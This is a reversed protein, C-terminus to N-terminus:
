PSSTVDNQKRLFVSILVVQLVTFAIWGFNVAQILSEFDNSEYFVPLFVITLFTVISVVIHIVAFPSEKTPEKGSLYGSILFWFPALYRLITLWTPETVHVGPVPSTLSDFSVFLLLIAFLSLLYFATKRIKM